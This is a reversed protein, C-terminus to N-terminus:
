DHLAGSTLMQSSGELLEAECADAPPLLRIPARDLSAIVPLAM